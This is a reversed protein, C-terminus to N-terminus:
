GSCIIILNKTKDIFLKYIHQNKLMVNYDIGRNFTLAMNYYYYYYYNYIFTFLLHVIYIWLLYDIYLTESEGPGM